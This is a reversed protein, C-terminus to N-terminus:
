ADRHTSIRRMLDDRDNPRGFVGINMKQSTDFMTKQIPLDLGVYRGCNALNNRILDLNAGAFAFQILSSIFHEVHQGTVHTSVQDISGGNYWAADFSMGDCIIVMREDNRIEQVAHRLSRAFSSQQDATIPFSQQVAPLTCPFPQHWLMEYLTSVTATCGTLTLCVEPTFSPRLVIRMAADDNRLDTTDAFRPIGMARCVADATYQELNM